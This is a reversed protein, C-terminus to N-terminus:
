KMYRDYLKFAMSQRLDTSIMDSMHQKGKMGSSLVYERM